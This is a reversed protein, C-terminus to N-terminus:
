VDPEVESIALKDTVAATILSRRYEQLKDLQKKVKSIVDKLKGQQEDIQNAINVQDDLPPVPMRLEKVDSMGITKITSGMTLSELEGNMAYITNLLFRNNIINKLCVWAIIHQSVAMLRITIAALGITAYRTFVVAGSEILHASSNAMGLASIKYKADRIYDLIALIKTDNLSVWPITCENEVWYSKETRSPTHGTELRCVFKIKKVEWHKPINGIWSIGSEKMPAIPNLGKTVAQNILATRKEELLQILRQKKAILTDIAATKRDLFRAISQQRKVHPTPLFINGIFDWSARPMKVGYTSSNVLNVFDPTLILYKLYNSDYKLPCFVLLESTCCGYNEAVFVKALYPRLKGFLVNGPYFRNGTAANEKEDLDPLNGNQILQGTWSEVNELGVYNFVTGAKDNILKVGYKLRIGTWQSTWSLRATNRSDSFTIM